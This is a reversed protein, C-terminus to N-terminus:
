TRLMSWFRPGGRPVVWTDIVEFGLARYLGLNRETATELYTSLRSGAIRALGSRIAAGGHGKGQAALDCGAIHLYWHPITPMHADIAHSVALGRGIAAGFTRWLPWAQRLLPMLGTKGQGPGRWLTAAEGGQSVLRMGSLADADFLLAFLRPLREARETADPFLFVMAPDDAFARALLAVIQARDANGAVRVPDSM